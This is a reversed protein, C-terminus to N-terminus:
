DNTGRKAPEKSQGQAQTAAQPVPQMTQDRGSCFSSISTNSVVHVDHVHILTHIIIFVKTFPDPM